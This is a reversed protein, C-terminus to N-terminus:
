GLFANGEAQVEPSDLGSVSTRQITGREIITNEIDANVDRSINMNFDLSSLLKVFRLNRGISSSRMSVVKVIERVINGIRNIISFKNVDIINITGESYQNLYFVYNNLANNFEYISENLPDIGLYYTSTFIINTHTCHKILSHIGRLSPMVRNRFDNYGGAIIVYDNLTFQSVLDVVNEIIDRYLANPKVVSQISFQNLRRKLAKNLNYGTQDCLILIRGQSTDKEHHGQNKVEEFVVQELDSPQPANTTVINIINHLNKNAKFTDIERRLKGIESFYTENDTELTRITSIMQCNIEKLSILEDQIKQHATLNNEFSTRLNDKENVLGIMEKKLKNLNVQQQKLQELYKEEQESVMGEFDKTGRKLRKIHNDKNKLKERLNAIEERLTQLEQKSEEYKQECESSCVIKTGGLKSVNSKRELCSPHFVEFCVVCCLNLYDKKKCCKFKTEM